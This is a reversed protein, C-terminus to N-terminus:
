HAPLARRSQGYQQRILGALECIRGALDHKQSVYAKINESYSGAPERQLTRLGAVLEDFNGHAVIGCAARELFGDPDVMYSLVPVGHKGAQLFTNPFGEQVSTSVFIFAQEFLEEVAALPLREHIIVNVPRAAYVQQEVAAMHANMVMVFTTEPCAQALKILLMPMKKFNDARGIWLAINREPAGYPRIGGAAELAIPNRVVEAPQGFRELLLQRQSELQAVILDAHALAYHCVAFSNGYVDTGHANPQYREDLNISDALFLIFKRHRDQCFAAVEGALNSVGFVAYIDANITDYIDYRGRPVTYSHIHLRPFQKLPQWHLLMDPYKLAQAVAYKVWTQPAFNIIKRFPFRGTHELVGGQRAIDAFLQEVITLKPAGYGPHAYVEVNQFTERRAQGFDNVVYSIQFEPNRALERSFLYSRVEAGGYIHHTAPNFLSYAQLGVFCVRMPM